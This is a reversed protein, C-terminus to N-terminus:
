RYSRVGHPPIALRNSGGVTRVISEHNRLAEGALSAKSRRIMAWKEKKM